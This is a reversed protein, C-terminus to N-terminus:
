AEVFLNAGFYLWSTASLKNSVLFGLQGAALALPEATSESAVLLCFLLARLEIVDCARYQGLMSSPPWSPQVRAAGRHHLPMVGPHPSQRWLASKMGNKPCGQDIGRFEQNGGADKGRFCSLPHCCRRGATQSAVQDAQGAARPRETKSLIPDRLPLRSTKRCPLM